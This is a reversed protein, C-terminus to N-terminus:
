LYKVLSQLLNNFLQSYISNSNNIFLGVETDRRHLERLWILKNHVTDPFFVAGRFM